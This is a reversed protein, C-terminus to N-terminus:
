FINYFPRFNRHSRFFRIPTPKWIPWIRHSKIECHSIHCAHIPCDTVILSCHKSSTKYMPCMRSRYMQDNELCLWLCHMCYIFASCAQSCFFIAKQKRCFVRFMWCMYMHDGIRATVNCASRSRCCREQLVFGSFVQVNSFFQAVEHCFWCFSPAGLSSLDAQADAWDSWLRQQAYLLYSLAWHKKMRVAFPRILSPPHGPQDSDKSPGCSCQQNQWTAAWNSYHNCYLADLLHATVHCFWCLSQAGLSPEAWGPGQRILTKATWM